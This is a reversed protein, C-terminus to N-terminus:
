GTAQSADAPARYTRTTPDYGRAVAWQEFTFAPEGDLLTYPRTPVVRVVHMAESETGEGLEKLSHVRM